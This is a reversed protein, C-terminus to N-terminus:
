PHTLLAIAGDAQVREVPGEIPAVMYQGIQPEVRKDAFLSEGACAARFAIDAVLLDALDRDFQQALFPWMGEDEDDRHLIMPRPRLGCLVWGPHIQGGAQRGDGPLRLQVAEKVTDAVGVSQQARDGVFHRRAASRAKAGKIAVVQWTEGMRKRSEAEPIRAAVIQDPMALAPRRQLPIQRCVFQGAGDEGRQAFLM